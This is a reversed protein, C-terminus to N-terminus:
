AKQVRAAARGVIRNGLEQFAAEVNKALDAKNGAIVVPAQSTVKDVRDVWEYLAQITPPRTLDAVGIIGAVGTFYADQLLERFQPQGMGDWIPLELVFPTEDNPLTVEVRKKSVKVGITMLYSDSYQSYVYRRILSTKGVAAEGVLCVKAKYFKPQAAM